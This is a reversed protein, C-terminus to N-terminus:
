DIRAVEFSGDKQIIAVWDHEYLVVKEQRFQTWALPMTPPDEPYSLVMTEPDMTFGKFDNWGVVYREHIQEKAPRPDSEQLFMPLFGLNVQPRLLYWTPIM